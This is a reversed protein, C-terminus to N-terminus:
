ILNICFDTTHGTCHRHTHTHYRYCSFTKKKINKKKACNGMNKKKKKVNTEECYVMLKYSITLIFNGKVGCSLFLPPIARPFYCILPCSSLCQKLEGYSIQYYFSWGMECYLWNHRWHTRGDYRDSHWAKYDVTYCIWIWHTTWWNHIKLTTHRIKVNHLHQVYNFWLNLFFDYIDESFLMQLSLISEWLCQLAFHVSPSWPSLSTLWNKMQPFYNILIDVRSFMRAKMKRRLQPIIQFKSLHCIAHLSSQCRNNEGTEVVWWWLLPWLWKKKKKLTIHEERSSARCGCPECGSLCHHNTPQQTGGKLASRSSLVLSNEQAQSSM